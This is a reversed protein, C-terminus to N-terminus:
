SAFARLLAAAEEAGPRAAARRYAVFDAFERPSFLPQHVRKRWGLLGM